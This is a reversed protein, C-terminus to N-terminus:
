FTGNLEQAYGTLEVYGRGVLKQNEDLVRVSGEWYTIGTSNKTDLEQDAVTPELALSLNDQPLSVKWRSPYNVKSAPSSWHDLDFQELLTVSHGVQSLRWAAMTGVIGAVIILITMSELCRGVGNQM